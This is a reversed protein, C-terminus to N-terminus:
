LDIRPSVRAPAPSPALSSNDPAAASPTDSAKPTVPTVPPAAPASQPKSKSPADKKTSPFFVGRVRGGKKEDAFMKSINTTLNVEARSGELINEDKEVKVNGLLEAIDTAANYRAKNGSLRETPTLIVVNGDAELRDLNGSGKMVTAANDTKKAATSTSASQTSEDKFYATLVAASLTNNPRIVKANGVAMAKRDNSFYELRDRATVTQVPSVLKLDKGTLVAHGSAVDYVGHDGYATNKADAITVNGEAVLQWIETSSTAGERYDATLTDCKLTMTGQTVIVNDRAIYKKNTRDWEVNKTATIEIPQASNDNTQALVPVVYLTALLAGLALARTTKHSFQIM